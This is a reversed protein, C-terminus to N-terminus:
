VPRTGIARTLKRRAASRNDQLPRLLRPKASSIVNPRDALARRPWPRSNRSGSFFLPRFSLRRVVLPRRRGRITTGRRSDPPVRVGAREWPSLPASLAKLARFPRTPETTSTASSIAPTNTRTSPTSCKSPSPTAPGAPSSIALWPTSHESDSTPLNPDTPPEGSNTSTPENTSHTPCSRSRQPRDYLFLLVAYSDHNASSCGGVRDPSPAAPLSPFARM